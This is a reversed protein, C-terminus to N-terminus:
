ETLLKDTVKYKGANAFNQNTGSPKAGKSGLPGKKELAQELAVGWFENKRRGGM